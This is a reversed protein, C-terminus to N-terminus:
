FQPLGLRHNQIANLTALLVFAALLAANVDNLACRHARGIDATEPAVLHKLLHRRSASFDSAGNASRSYLSLSKSGM